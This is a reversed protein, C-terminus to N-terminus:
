PTPAKTRSAARPLWPGCASGSQYAFEVFSARVEDQRTLDEDGLAAAQNLQEVEQNLKVVSAELDARRASINGQIVLMERQLEARTVKVGPDILGATQSECGILWGAAGIFAVLAIATYRNHSIWNTIKHVPDM